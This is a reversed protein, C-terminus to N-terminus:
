SGGSSKDYGGANESNTENYMAVVQSSESYKLLVKVKGVGNIVNGQNQAGPIRAKM